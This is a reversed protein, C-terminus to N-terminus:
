LMFLQLQKGITTLFLVSIIIYFKAHKFSSMSMNAHVNGILFFLFCKWHSLVTMIPIILFLNPNGSKIQHGKWISILYILLFIKLPYSFEGFSESLRNVICSFWRFIFCWNAYQTGIWVINRFISSMRKWFFKFIQLLSVVNCYVFTLVVCQDLTDSFDCPILICLFM